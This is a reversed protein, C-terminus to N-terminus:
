AAAELSAVYADFDTRRIRRCRGIRVSILDRNWM